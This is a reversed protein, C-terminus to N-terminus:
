RLAGEADVAISFRREKNAQKQQDAIAPAACKM